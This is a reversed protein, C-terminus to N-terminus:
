NGGRVLKAIKRLLHHVGFISGLSENFTQHYQNIRYIKTLPLTTILNPKDETYLFYKYGSEVAKKEIDDNALGNPYAFLNINRNSLQELITKSKQLEITYDAESLGTLMSHTHSHSGIEVLPDAALQKLDDNSLVKSIKSKDGGLQDFVDKSFLRRDNTNLKTLVKSFAFETTTPTSPNISIGKPAFKEHRYESAKSNNLVDYVRMNDQSMGTELIETDININFKLQHKLLSPYANEKIDYLGDDFTIIAASQNSSNFHSEIESIHIVKFHVALYACWQEFVKVPTAPYILHGLDNVQHFM